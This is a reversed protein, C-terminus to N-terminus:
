HAAKELYHFLYRRKQQDNVRTLMKDFDLTPLHKRKCAVQCWINEKLQGQSRFEFM